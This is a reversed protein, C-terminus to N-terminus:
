TIIDLLSGLMEDQVQITKINAEYSRRAVMLDPIEEALNVNSTKKEVKQGNEYGHYPYGPTNVRTLAIHVDGHMGEEMVPQVKKYGDTNVNAVNNATVGLKKVYAQLASVSSNIASIM